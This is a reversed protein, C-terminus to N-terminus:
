WAFAVGHYTYRIERKPLTIFVLAKLKDTLIDTARGFDNNSLLEYYEELLL